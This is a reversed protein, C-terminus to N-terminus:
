AHSVCLSATVAVSAHDSCSLAKIFKWSSSSSSSYSSSSKGGTGRNAPFNGEADLSPFMVSSSRRFQRSKIDRMDMEPPFKVIGFMPFYWKPKSSAKKNNDSKGVSKVSASREIDLDPSTKSSGFRRLKQYDLSRSIRLFQHNNKTSNSRHTTAYSDLNSLSESRRHLVGQTKAENSLIQSPAPQPTSSILKGCFIIDEAPCMESSFDGSLFEFFQDQPETSLSSQPTHRQSQSTAIEQSNNTTTTTTNDEENLPLDCLSLAEEAEEEATGHFNRSSNNNDEMKTESFCQFHFCM